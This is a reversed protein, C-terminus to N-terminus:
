ALTVPPSLALAAAKKALAADFTKFEDAPASLTVHLADAFDAGKAYCDIARYVAEPHQPRLNPAAMLERLRTALPEREWGKTQLVWVLELLVTVPVWYTDEGQVLQQARKFQASDDAILLRVLINTDVAIM